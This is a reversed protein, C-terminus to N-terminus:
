DDSKKLLKLLEKRKKEPIKEVEQTFHAIATDGFSSVFNKIIQRTVRTLFKDKSYTAQYVYAKGSTKRKLLGKAVLRSMVTMVTTYAIKRRNKLTGLVIKVPIPENIKWVIEMIDSELEGLIKGNSLGDM